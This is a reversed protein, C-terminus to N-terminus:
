KITEQLQWDIREGHKNIREEFIALEKEFKIYKKPSLNRKAKKLLKKAIIIVETNNSFMEIFLNNDFALSM